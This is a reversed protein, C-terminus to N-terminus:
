FTVLSKKPSSKNIKSYTASPKIKKDISKIRKDFLWFVFMILLLTLLLVLVISLNKKLM